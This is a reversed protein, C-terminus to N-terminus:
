TVSGDMINVTIDSHYWWSIEPKDCIQFMNIVLSPGNGEWVQCSSIVFLTATVNSHYWQSMVITVLFFKNLFVSESYIFIDLQTNLCSKELRVQSIVTMDNRCGRYYWHFLNSVSITWCKHCVHSVITIFRHNELSIMAIDSHNHHTDTYNKNIFTNM